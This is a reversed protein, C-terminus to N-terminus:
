LRQVAPPSPHPPPPPRPPRTTPSPPTMDARGRRVLPVGLGSARARVCRVLRDELFTIRPIEAKKVRPVWATPPVKRVADWWGPKYWIGGRIQDRAFTLFDTRLRFRM